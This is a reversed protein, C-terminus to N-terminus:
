CAHAAGVQGNIRVIETVREKERGTERMRGSVWEGVGGHDDDDAQM